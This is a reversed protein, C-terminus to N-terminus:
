KTETLIPYNVNFLNLLFHIIYDITAQALCMGLPLFFISILGNKSYLFKWFSRNGNEKEILFNYVMLPLFILAWITIIVSICLNILHSM